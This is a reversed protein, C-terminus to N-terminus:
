LENWEAQTDWIMYMDVLWVVNSCEIGKLVASEGHIHLVNHLREDLYVGGSFLFYFDVKLYWGDVQAITGKCKYWGGRESGQGATKLEKGVIILEYAHNELSWMTKMLFGGMDQEPAEEFLRKGVSQTPLVTLGKKCKHQELIELMGVMEVIDM